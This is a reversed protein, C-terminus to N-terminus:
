DPVVRMRQEAEVACAIRELRFHVRSDAGASAIMAIGPSILPLAGAARPSTGTCNGVPDTTASLEAAAVINEIPM